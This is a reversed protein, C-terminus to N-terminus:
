LYRKCSDKIAQELPTFSFGPLANTIKSNNYYTLNQAIRATERSLISGKGTLVSKIKETILAVNALFPTVKRYPRKKGFGDAITNFLQQYNWNDGNIIFREGNIDSELLAVAARAVDEVYVFGNVGTTYWPFENYVTKFIECSTNNWNGYGLVVTPNLITAELGEAIGRWVEMEAKYKSIAYGTNLKGDNWQKEETVTEGSESRGLAAVSSIHIFRRINKELAMNVVNTTGEVNVQYLEKRKDPSFSVIAAAHVIADIGEMAEDLSVIDLVDGEVWEVKNMIGAAIFAPIKGSLRKIARVKHGKEILQKLIYAGIFGTGGTVLIM